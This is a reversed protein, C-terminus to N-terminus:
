QIIDVWCGRRDRPDMKVTRRKAGTNNDRVCHAADGGGTAAPASCQPPTAQWLVYSQWTAMGAQARAAPVPQVCPGGRSHTQRRLVELLLQGHMSCSTRSQSKEPLGPTWIQMFVVM